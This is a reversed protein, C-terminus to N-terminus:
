WSGKFLNITIKRSDKVYANKFFMAPANSGLERLSNLYEVATESDVMAEAPLKLELQMKICVGQASHTKDKSEGELEIDTSWLTTIIDGNAYISVQQWTNVDLADNIGAWDGPCGIAKLQASVALALAILHIAVL